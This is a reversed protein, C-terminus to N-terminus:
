ARTVTPPQIIGPLSNNGQGQSSFSQNLIPPQNPIPPLSTANIVSTSTSDPILNAVTQVKLLIQGVKSNAGFLSIATDLFPEFEKHLAALEQIHPTLGHLFSLTKNIDNFNM